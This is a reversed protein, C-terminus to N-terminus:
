LFCCWGMIFSCPSAYVQYEKLCSRIEWHCGTYLSVLELALLYFCHFRTLIGLNKVQKISTSNNLLYQMCCM